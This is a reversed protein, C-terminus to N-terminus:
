VIDLTERIRKAVVQQDETYSTASFRYFDMIKKQYDPPFTEIPIRGEYVNIMDTALQLTDDPLIPVIQPNRGIQETTLPPLDLLQKLNGM